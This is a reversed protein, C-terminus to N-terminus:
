DFYTPTGYRVLRVGRLVDEVYAIPKGTKADMMITQGYMWRWFKDYEEISLSEALQDTTFGFESKPEPLELEKFEAKIAKHWKKKLGNYRTM